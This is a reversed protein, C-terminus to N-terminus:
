SQRAKELLSSPTPRTKPLRDVYRKASELSDFTSNGFQVRGDVIRLTRGAHEITTPEEVTASSAAVAEPTAIADAFSVTGGDTAPAAAPNAVDGFSKAPQQGQRLAEKSVDLTDRAVKLMQQSLEACDVAARANQVGALSLFGFGVLAIGPMAAMFLAVGSPGRGFSTVEAAAATLGVALFIGSIIMSWAIFEMVSHLSRAAEYSRM